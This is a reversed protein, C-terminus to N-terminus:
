IVEELLQAKTIMPVTKMTIESKGDLDANDFYDAYNPHMVLMFFKGEPLKSMSFKGDKDTRTFKVLVSDSKRLIAVVANSLNKKESTDIVTGKISATQAICFQLSGFLFLIGASLKKM